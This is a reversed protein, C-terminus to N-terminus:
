WQGRRRRYRKRTLGAEGLFRLDRGTLFRPASKDTRFAAAARATQMGGGTSFHRWKGDIKKWGTVMKGSPDFYYNWNGLKQWGIQM